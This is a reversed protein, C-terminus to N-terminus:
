VDQYENTKPRLFSILLVLGGLVIVALLSFDRGLHGSDTSKGLWETILAGSLVGVMNMLGYATARQRPGIFQCLMPMNNADTMGYGVGFCIGAGVVTVLSHGFGLLLLSPITLGMGIAITYVRGKVNTKIWRDSLVGGSVVGLFSASAITVTALPGAGSMEMGLSSAYLTPLWNKVAWGPLSLLAFYFLIIGFAPLTLLERSGSYTKRSSVREKDKLLFLLMGAYVIGALGFFHFSSQWSGAAAITGGFGGLAQGLYLGTMHVGIALGRTSSGHYDAILSLGAPLYLAESVGMIARLVYLQHYSTAYGMAFVVGSWVLLSVVILGKRNVRDAIVGAVPSMFGYIWLFIGMLYGFNTASALEGIDKQMAPRLTSLMQRDLYNLLGVVWLLGVVVWPYIKERKM